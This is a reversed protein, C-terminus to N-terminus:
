YSYAHAPLAASHESSNRCNARERQLRGILDLRRPVLVSQFLRLSARASRYAPHRCLKQPLHRPFTGPGSVAISTSRITRDFVATAPPMVVLGIDASRFDMPRCAREANPPLGLTWSYM